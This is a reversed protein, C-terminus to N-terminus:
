SSEEHRDVPAAARTPRPKAAARRRAAIRHDARELGAAAVPGDLNRALSRVTPFRFLDVIRVSDQRVGGLRAAVTTLAMSHGGLDFFNDVASVSQVGLVDCWIRAILLETPTRPPDSARSPAPPEPLAARDLKGNRTLPLAAVPVIVTPRAYDPLRGALHSHYDETWGAPGTPVVYGVLSRADGVGRAIVAAHRVDPHERLVSEVQALEVRRGRITTQDDARGAVMIEGSPTFRGLDGTRYRKETGDSEPASFGRLGAGLYGRALNDGAVVVEGLEGVAALRGAPDVVTVLSGPCPRGIPVALAASGAAAGDQDAVIHMAQLQPTETTGYGNVLTAHPFLGRLLRVDHGTLEDGSSVALRVSGVVTATAALLRLLQPTVHAITVGTANLFDMLRDPDRIWTADPVQVAGGAALPVFVDRLLPDHGIGALLAVVDGPGIRFRQRYTTMFRALPREPTDVVAPIGTTGSTTMLYGRDAATVAPEAGDAAADLATAPDLAAVADVVPLHAVTAPVALGPLRVLARADGAILQRRLLEDPMAADLLLWRCGSQLVGLMAPALLTQRGAIIGVAQGVQVGRERLSTAIAAATRMLDAYRLTPGHGAVAVRAPDTAAAERLQEVVGAPEVVHPPGSVADADDTPRMASVGLPEGPAGTLADLVARYSELMAEIREVDYLDPNYVLELGVSRGREELYFTLDYLAGPLGPRIATSDVGPLDLRAPTFSYLNFVVQILPNRSVDRPLRLDDVIREFPTHQHEIAGTLAAQVADVHDDFTRGPPVTIRVPLTEVFLGILDDFAPHRRDASPVGIILDDQGTLRAVLVSFAALLVSFTTTEHRAALARAAAVTPPALAGDAIDGRYSQVAPRGRDGPLELVPPAGALTDQWWHRQEADNRSGESQLWSVYDAYGVPGGPQPPDEGHRAAVYASSLDKYLLSWSWGDFIIHHFTMALIHDDPGLRLLRARWLPGAAVDLRDAAARHLADRIAAGADVSGTLDDTVLDVTLDHDIVYPVGDRDPIRWRLADHRATLGRVATRLAPVSLEGRLREAIAINYASTHESLSDVFWLRQQTGTLAPPHGPTPDAGVGAATDEIRGALIALSPSGLVDPISVPKGLELRLAAALRMALLSHGGSALFSSEPAPMAGGFIRQWVSAVRRETESRFEAAPAEGDDTLMVQLAQWDIKVTPTMPLRPMRIVRGPVMTAPLRDACFARLGDTDPATEPALFAVLTASEGPTVGVVAQTVNPHALVAAEIEGIEVRQGAIKVQRDARGLYHLSGREDRRVVDGTYYMRTGARDSFPDPRFSDATRGPLGLYGRSVQGGGIWLHGVEGDPVPVLAADLVYAGVGATPFGIPLPRDHHGAFREATVIITTETPGYMNWLERGDRTWRHVQSPDTPEAAVILCRLDPVADPDILPVVSPALYGWTAKHEAIFRQLKAPDSRDQETAIQLSGGTLLMALNDLVIVDFAVSTFGIARSGPGLDNLEAMGRIFSILSRHSVVVGKPVGTSGSTFLVYAARDLSAATRSLADGPLSMARDTASLAVTPRDVRVLQLRTDALAAAGADDVLACVPDAVSLLQDRRLRPQAPEMPVFAAGAALTAMIAVCHYPRRSTCVIVRDDAGVGLRRLRLALARAGEDVERYTLLEGWQGVAEADPARRVQREFLEFLTCKADPEPLAAAAPERPPPPTCM